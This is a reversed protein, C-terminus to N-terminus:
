STVRASHAGYASSGFGLDKRTSWAAQQEFSSAAAAVIRDSLVFWACALAAYSAPVWQRPRIRRGRRSRDEGNRRSSAAGRRIITRGNGRVIVPRRSVRIGAIARLGLQKLAGGEGCKDAVTRARRRIGHLRRPPAHLTRRWNRRWFRDFRALMAELDFARADTRLVAPLDGALGAKM